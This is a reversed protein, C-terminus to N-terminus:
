SIASTNTSQCALCVVNWFGAPESTTQPLVPLISTWPLIRRFNGSFNMVAGCCTLVAPMAEHYGFALRGSLWSRCPTGNIFRQRSHRLVGACVLRDSERAIITQRTEGPLDADSFYNPERELSISIQGEMPNDRLLRRIEADDGPAAVAFQVRGSRDTLQRDITDRAM